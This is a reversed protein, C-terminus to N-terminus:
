CGKAIVMLLCKKLGGAPSQMAQVLISPHKEFVFYVTNLPSYFFKALSPKALTLWEFCL